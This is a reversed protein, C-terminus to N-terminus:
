GKTDEKDPHQKITIVPISRQILWHSLAAAFLAATMGLFAWERAPERIDETLLFVATGIVTLASVAVLGLTAKKLDGVVADHEKETMDRSAFFQKICTYVMMAIPFFMGVYPLAVWLRRTGDTDLLGALVFLAACVVSLALYLIRIQLLKRDPVDYRFYDGKYIYDYKVRRGKAGDLQQVVEYQEAYHKKSKM